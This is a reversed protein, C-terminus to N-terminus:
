KAILLPVTKSKTKFKIIRVIDWIKSGSSDLQAIDITVITESTDITTVKICLIKM